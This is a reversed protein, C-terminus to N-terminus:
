ETPDAFSGRAEPGDRHFELYGLYAEPFPCGNEAQARRFGARESLGAFRPVSSATEISSRNLATGWHDAGGFRLGLELGGLCFVM